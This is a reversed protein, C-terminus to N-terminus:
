NDSTYIHDHIHNYVTTLYITIIIMNVAEPRINAEMRAACCGIIHADVADTSSCKIICIKHPTSFFIILRVRDM